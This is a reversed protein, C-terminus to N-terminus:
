KRATLSYCQGFYPNPFVQVSRFGAEKLMTEAEGSTYGHLVMKSVGCIINRRVTKMQPGLEPMLGRKELSDEYSEVVRKMNDGSTRGTLAFVGGPKLVLYHERLYKQFDDVFHAVFMSSAGDFTGDEFPLKVADVNYVHLKEGHGACRKRLIDLAKVSTDVAYVVHSRKLLEETVNGTGCGSDLVVKRRAM